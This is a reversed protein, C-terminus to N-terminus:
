KDAKGGFVKLFIAVMTPDQPSLGSGTPPAWSLELHIRGFEGSEVTADIKQVDYGCAKLIEAAKAVADEPHVGKKPTTDKLFALTM